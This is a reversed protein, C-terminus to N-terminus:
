PKFGEDALKGSLHVERRPNITPVQDVLKEWLSEANPVYGKNECWTLFARTTFVASDLEQDHNRILKPVKGNEYVVMATLGSAEVNDILWDLIAREGGDKIRHDPKTLRALQLLEGTSTFEIAVSGEEVGKAIWESIETSGPKGPITAEMAVLDPIRVHGVKKLLDLQGIYSLHILPSADATILDIKM